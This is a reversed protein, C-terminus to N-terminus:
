YNIPKDNADISFYHSYCLTPASGIEIVYDVGPSLNKPVTWTYTKANQDINSNIIAIEQMSSAMGKRLKITVKQNQGGPTWDIVGKDGLKWVTGDVPNTISPCQQTQCYIRSIFLLITLIVKSLM